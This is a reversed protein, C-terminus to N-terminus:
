SNQSILLKSFEDADFPQLDNAAEGVGIAYIPLGFKQALAIVIGGRATGDLKTVILGSIPTVENFLEVQNIANQGTTADLTILTAHPGEEGLQKGIVRKVKELEDMLDQRNHLRGATDIMVVDISPDNKAKEIAEFAVAGADAGIDKSLFQAGTREAWIQLQEVAAARFTDGAALLVGKGESQFKQALKAITTTKGTGNVGVMLVVYPKKAQDIEFSKAVPALIESVKSALFDKVEVADIDKDFRDKSLSEALESATVPGLDATILLDELEDLMEQDLRSKTFIDTIGSTLKSSSKSLGKKLRQTWSLKKEKPLEEVQPEKKVAEEQVTELEKEPQAIVEEVVEQVEPEIESEVEPEASVVTEKILEPIAEEVVIEQVPESTAEEIELEVEETQIPEQVPAEVPQVDQKKNDDKKKKKWFFM